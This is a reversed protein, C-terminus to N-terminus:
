IFEIEEVDIMNNNLYISNRKNQIIYMNNLNHIRPFFNVKLSILANIKIKDLLSKIKNLKLRSLKHKGSSSEDHSRTTCINRDIERRPSTKLLSTMNRGQDCLLKCREKVQSVLALVVYLEIKIL